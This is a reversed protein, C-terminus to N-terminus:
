KRWTQDDIDTLQCIGDRCDITVRREYYIKGARETSIAKFYLLWRNADPLRSVTVPSIEIGPLSYIDCDGWEAGDSLERLELQEPSLVYRQVGNLLIRLEARTEFYRVSQIARRTHLDFAISLGLLATFLVLAIVFAAGKENPRNM